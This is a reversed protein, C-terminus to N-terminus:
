FSSLKLTVVVEIEATQVFMDFPAVSLLEYKAAENGTLLKGLDRALTAPNCSVYIIQKPPNALIANVVKHDLGEVPPDVMLLTSDLDCETLVVPLEAGVEGAIYTENQAAKKQAAAVAHADWEIGVVKHFNHAFEAGFFGAGCYADIFITANENQIFRLVVEKIYDKLLQAVGDNTQEFFRPRERDGRLTFHRERSESYTYSGRSRRINARLETLAVNVAGEAIPCYEIDLIQRGHEYKRGHKSKWFTTSANRAFPYEHAFFGINGSDNTHVTIRNRYGYSQPSGVIPLMPLATEKLNSIRRLLQAIQKEKVRRQEEIAMHQYACGGCQGFYPCQPAVRLPSAVEVEILRAQAYNKHHKVVEVRVTEGIIVFPVFMICGDELRGVGMGGFAIDIIQVRHFSSM